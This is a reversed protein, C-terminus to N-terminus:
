LYTILETNCYNNLQSELNGGTKAFGVVIENALEIILNNRVEATKRSTRKVNHNFPSIILLQDKDLLRKIEPPYNRMLERALVLIIPQDGKSLYHFVDKEIRSHFGSIVCNGKERQEIAWDYCKLIKDAPIQRSCLFGTKHINLLDKNGLLNM